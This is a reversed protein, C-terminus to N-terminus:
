ARTRHLTDMAADTFFRGTDGAGATLRRVGAAPRARRSGARQPWSGRWNGRRARVASRGMTAVARRRILIRGLHSESSRAPPRRVDGGSVGAPQRAASARIELRM